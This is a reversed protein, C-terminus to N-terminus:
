SINEKEWKIKEDQSNWWDKKWKGCLECREDYWWNYKSLKIKFLVWKHLCNSHFCLCCKDKKEDEKIKAKSIIILGVISFLFCFIQFAWFFVLFMEKIDENM